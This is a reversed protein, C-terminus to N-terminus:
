LLFLLQYAFRHNKKKFSKRSQPPSAQHIHQTHSNFVNILSNEHLASFWNCVSTLLCYLRGHKSHQKEETKFNFEHDEVFHEKIIGEEETM